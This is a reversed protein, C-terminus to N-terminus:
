QTLPYVMVRDGKSVSQGDDVRVLCDAWVVSSLAGSSQQPHIEVGELGMRGRLYECRKRPNPLDFNARMPLALPQNIARGQRKFLLPRVLLVFTVFASVPNGPLGIFPTEGVYGFALPKGPKLNIKWLMLKGLETVAAKVYDADGVSVGGSSIILDANQAAAQLADHTADLSDAVIGGDIVECNMARLMGTLLYRNSNYIKGRALPQGPELLENGTSFIIVRLPKYVRVEAINVSALLGIDQPRLYHGQEFLRVGVLIDQGQPRINERPNVAVQLIIDDGERVCDEQIVVADAGDPIEAGTLIRAATGALLPEAIAGAAITQSVPLRSGVHLGTSNVAYGDMASNDVPPVNIAASYDQALIRNYAQMLPVTETANIASVNDILQQQAAEISILTNSSPPNM